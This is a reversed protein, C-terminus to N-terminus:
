EQVVFCAQEHERLRDCAGSAQARSTFGRARVKWFGSLAAIEIGNSGMIHAINPPLTGLASQAGQRSRHASIQVAYRGQGTVDPNSLGVESASHLRYPLCALGSRRMAACRQVAHGNRGIVILRYVRGLRPNRAQRITYGLGSLAEPFRSSLISWGREAHDHRFYAGIQIAVTAERAVAQAAMGVRDSATRAAGPENAPADPTLPSVAGINATGESVMEPRESYLDIGAVVPGDAGIEVMATAGDTAIRYRGPRVGQFVYFGDRDARTEALAEGSAPDLLRLQARAAARGEIEGTRVMGYELAFVRGAAPLISVGDQAPTTFPADEPADLIAVDTVWGPGLRDLYATGAADTEASRRQQIAGIQVGPMPPEGPDRRGNANEDLYVDVRATATGTAPGRVMRPAYTKPDPAASLKMSVFGSLGGQTDARVDAGFAAFRTEWLAAASVFGADDATERGDFGVEAEVRIGTGIRWRARAAIDDIDSTPALRYSTRLRLDLPGMRRSMESFGDISAGSSRETDRRWIMSNQLNLNPASVGLRAEAASDTSGSERLDHRLALTMPIAIRETPTLRAALRLDSERTTQDRPLLRDEARFGDLFERHTLAVGVDGIRHEMETTVAVGSALDKVASVRGNLGFGTASLGLGLYTHATEDIDYRAFFPNATVRVERVAGVHGPSGTDLGLGLGARLEAVARLSGTETGGSAFSGPLDGMLVGRNTQTLSLSYAARGEPPRTGDFYVTETLTEEQGQPGTLKIRFVNAGNFLAVDRFSYLGDAGVVQREILFENRYLEVQYGPEGDGIFETTGGQGVPSASGGSVRVGREIRGISVSDVRVSAVDGISAANGGMPGFLGDSPEFYDWRLRAASVPDLSSGASFLRVTGTALDASVDAAYSTVTRVRDESTPRTVSQTLSLDISPPGIWRSQNPMPPLRAPPILLGAAPRTSFGGDIRDQIPLRETPTLTLALSRPDFSASVPFWQSLVGARVWIAGNGPAIDNPGLPLSRGAVDLRNATVSLSFTRDETKFWGIAGNASVTIPFDLADLVDQLDVWLGRTPDEESPHADLFGFAAPVRVTRELRIEFVTEEPGDPSSFQAVAATAWLTGILAAFRIGWRGPM